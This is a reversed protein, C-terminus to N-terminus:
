ERLREAYGPRLFLIRTTAPPAVVVFLDPPSAAPVNSKALRATPDAARGPGVDISPGGPLYGRSTWCSQGNGGIYSLANGRTKMFEFTLASATPALPPFPPPPHCPFSSLNYGSLPADRCIAAASGVVAAVLVAVWCSRACAMGGIKHM